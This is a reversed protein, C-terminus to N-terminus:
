VIGGGWGCYVIFGCWGDGGALLLLYWCIATAIYAIFFEYFECFLLPMPIFIVWFILVNSAKIM